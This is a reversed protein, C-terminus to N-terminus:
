PTKMGRLKERAEAQAVLKDVRPGWFRRQAELWTLAPELAGEVPYVRRLRGDKVRKILGASTLVDLHKTISQPTLATGRALEGITSGSKSSLRALITRRTANSMAGFLEDMRAESVNAM